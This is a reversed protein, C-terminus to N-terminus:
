PRARRLNRYSLDILHISQYHQCGMIWREVVLDQEPPPLSRHAERCTEIRGTFQGSWFAGMEYRNWDIFAGIAVKEDFPPKSGNVADDLTAFIDDGDFIGAVSICKGQFQQLGQLVDSVSTQITDAAPCGSGGGVTGSSSLFLNACATLTVLPLAVRIGWRM